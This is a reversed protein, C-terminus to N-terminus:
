SSSTFLDSYETATNDAMATIAATNPAGSLHIM